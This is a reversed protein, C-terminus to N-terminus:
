KVSHLRVQSPAPDKHCATISTSRRDSSVSSQDLCVSLLYAWGFNIRNHSAILLFEAGFALVLNPQLRPQHSFSAKVASFRVVFWGSYRDAAMLTLQARGGYCSAACCHHGRSCSCRELNCRLASLDREQWWVDTPQYSLNKKEHM